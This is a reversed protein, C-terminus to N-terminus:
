PMIIGFVASGGCVIGLDCLAELSPSISPVGYAVAVRVAVQIDTVEVPVTAPPVPVVVPEVIVPVVVVGRSQACIEESRAWAEHYPRTKNQSSDM